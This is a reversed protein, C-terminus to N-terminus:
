CQLSAVRPLTADKCNRPSRKSISSGHRFIQKVQEEKAQCEHTAGGCCVSLGVTECHFVSEGNESGAKNAYLCEVKWRGVVVRVSM